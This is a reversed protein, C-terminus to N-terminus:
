SLFHSKMNKRYNPVRQVHLFEATEYGCLIDYLFKDYSTDVFFM